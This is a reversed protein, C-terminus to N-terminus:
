NVRHYHKEGESLLSYSSFFGTLSFLCAEAYSLDDLWPFSFVINIWVHMYVFVYICVFIHGM